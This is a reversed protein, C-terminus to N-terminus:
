FTIDFFDLQYRGKLLCLREQQKFVMSIVLNKLFNQIAVGVVGSCLGSQEPSKKHRLCFLCWEDASKRRQELGSESRQAGTRPRRKTATDSVVLKKM